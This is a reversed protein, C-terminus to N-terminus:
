AAAHRAVFAELKERLEKESKESIEKSDRIATLVADAERALYDQLKTEIAGIELPSFGDLYGNAAAFIIAAQMDFPLPAGRPQNLIGTMRRGADIRRKTETDL